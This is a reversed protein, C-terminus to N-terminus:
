RPWGGKRSSATRTDTAPPPGSRHSARGHGRPKCRESLGRILPRRFSRPPCPVQWSRASRSFSRPTSLRSGGAPTLPASWCCPWSTSAHDSSTDSTFLINRGEANFSGNSSRWASAGRHQAEQFAGTLTVRGTNLNFAFTCPVEDLSPATGTFDDIYAVPAGTDGVPQGHLTGRAGSPTFPTCDGTVLFADGPSGQRSVSFAINEGGGTSPERGWQTLTNLARETRIRDSTSSETAM